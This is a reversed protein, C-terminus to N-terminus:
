DPNKRDQEDYAGDGRPEENHRKNGNNQKYPKTPSRGCRTKAAQGGRVRYRDIPTQENRKHPPRGAASATAFRTNTNWHTQQRPRGAASVFLFPNGTQRALRDRNISYMDGQSLLSRRQRAESVSSFRGFPCKGASKEAKAAKGGDSLPNKTRRNSEKMTLIRCTHFLLYDSIRFILIYIDIYFYGYIVYCAFIGLM